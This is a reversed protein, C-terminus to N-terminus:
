PADRLDQDSGPVRIEGMPIKSWDVTRLGKPAGKTWVLVGPWTDELERLSSRKMMHTVGYYYAVGALHAPDDAKPIVVGRLNPAGYFTMQLAHTMMVVGDPHHESMWSAVEEAETTELQPAELRGRTMTWVPWGAFVAVLAATAFPVLARDSWSRPLYLAALGCSVATLVAMGPYVYRWVVVWLFIIGSAFVGFYIAVMWAVGTQRSWTASRIADMGDRRISQVGRAISTLWLALLCLGGTANPLAVEWTPVRHVAREAIATEIEENVGVRHAQQRLGLFLLSFYTRQNYWTRDLYTGWGQNWRDEFQPAEVGWYIKVHDTYWGGYGVYTGAQSQTNLIPKGYHATNLAMLPLLGALLLAQAQHLRKARLVSWGHIAVVLAPFVLVMALQSGKAYWTAAALLGGLWLWRGGRVICALMTATLTALLLDSMPIVSQKVFEPTHLVLLGALLTTSARRGVAHALSAVSLPLAITGILVSVLRATWTTPGFWWFFPALVIGMAPPWHDDPRWIAPDYPRYFSSIYRIFLGDGEALSRGQNAYAAADLPGVWRDGVTADMRLYASAAGALLLVVVVCWLRWREDREEM